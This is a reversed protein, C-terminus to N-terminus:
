FVPCEHHIWGPRARIVSAPSRPSRITAAPSTTTSTTSTTSKTTTTTTPFSSPSILTGSLYDTIIHRDQSLKLKGQWNHLAKLIKIAESKAMQPMSKRSLKYVMLQSMGALIVLNLYKDTHTTARNMPGHLEIFQAVVLQLQYVTAQARRWVYYRM